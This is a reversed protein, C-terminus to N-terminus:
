TWGGAYSAVSLPVYCLMVSGIPVAGRSELVVALWTWLEGGAAVITAAMETSRRAAMITIEEKRRVGV